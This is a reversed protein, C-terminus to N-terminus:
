QRQLPVPARVAYLVPAARYAALDRGVPAPGHPLTAPMGGHFGTAGGLPLSGPGPFVGPTGPLAGPLLPMGSALRREEMWTSVVKAQYAAALGPTSSHYQAAARSWDNTQGHLENLFRAAYAANAGPDFAQDLSAFADPHHMLNVQMCGVDISRVGQAQLARVAAIAQAKSDYFSGQGEANITWPWPAMAGSVPDLRGSEVRGIAAMLLPPIAGAREAGAIAARCLTGQAPASVLPAAQVMGPLWSLLAIIPRLVRM